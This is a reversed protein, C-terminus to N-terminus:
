YAQGGICFSLVLFWGDREHATLKVYMREGRFRPRYVDLWIGNRSRHPVTKHFAEVELAIVCERVFTRDWGCSRLHRAVRAPVEFRDDGFAAAVEDLGYRPRKLLGGDPVSM